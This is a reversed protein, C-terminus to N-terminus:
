TIPVQSANADVTRQWHGLMGRVFLRHLEISDKLTPLGCTGDLLISEVLKATVESQFPLRGAIRLGDSREAIGAEEDIVWSHTGDDLRFLCSYPEATVNLRASSGGSFKATLTGMIEWYEPRKAPIWTADLADTGIEQLVEGSWWGLMDLYHVSNCGLGWSGGTVTLHLPVGPTLEAKIQNHWPLTRRPTNVWANNGPGVLLGIEDLDGESQALVKELVWFRVAAHETLARVVQPRARATTAVVAIDLRSPIADLSSHFVVCHPTGAAAVESWRKQARDLSGQDIDHVHIQLALRSAALGQLYRSGLQGAGSILIVAKSTNM